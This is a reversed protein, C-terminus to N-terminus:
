SFARAVVFTMVYVLALAPPAILLLAVGASVRKITSPPEQARM